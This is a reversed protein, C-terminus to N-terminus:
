ATVYDEEKELVCPVNCPDYINTTARNVPFEDSRTPSYSPEAYLYHIILALFLLVICHWLKFSPWLAMRANFIMKISNIFSMNTPKEFRVGFHSYVEQANRSNGFNNCNCCCDCVYDNFIHCQERDYERRKADDMLVDKANALLRFAESAGSVPNKDPHIDLALRKYALSIQAKTANQPVKLIAYLNNGCLKVRRVAEMQSHKDM